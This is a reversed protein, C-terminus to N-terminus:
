RKSDRVRRVRSAIQPVFLLASWIFALWRFDSQVLLNFIAHFVSAALLLSFIGCWFLKRRKYVFSVGLGVMATCASHMQAAGFGRALAWPVTVSGVNAVLIVMNELMAFGLGVAMALSVLTRREDSFFLAYYLVPLCKLLEEAIPTINATVYVTDGGFLQLLLPNLESAVLCLAVGILLFGLFLRAQRDPLLTIVPLIPICICLFLIVTIGDM